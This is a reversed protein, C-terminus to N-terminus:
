VVVRSRGEVVLLWANVRAGGGDRFVVNRSGAGAVLCCLARRGEFVRRSLGTSASGVDVRLGNCDVAVAAYALLRLYGPLSVM